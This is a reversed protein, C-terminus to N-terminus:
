WEANAAVPLPDPDPDPDPDPALEVEIAPLKVEWVQGDYARLMWDGVGWPVQTGSHSISYLVEEQRVGDVEPPRYRVDMGGAFQCAVIMSDPAADETDVVSDLQEQLDAVKAREAELEETLRAIEEGRERYKTELEAKTYAM